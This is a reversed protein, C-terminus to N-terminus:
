DHTENTKYAGFVGNYTMDRVASSSSQQWTGEARINGAVVPPARHFSANTGPIPTRNARGHFSIDWTGSLEGAPSIWDDNLDDPGTSIAGQSTRIAGGAVDGNIPGLDFSSFVAFDLTSDTRSLASLEEVRGSITFSNGTEHTAGFDAVLTVRGTYEGIVRSASDTASLTAVGVTRGDYEATGRIGRTTSDIAISYDPGVRYFAGGYEWPGGPASTMWYGLKLYDLHHLMPYADTRVPQYYDASTEGDDTYVHIEVTDPASSTSDTVVVERWLVEETCPGDSICETSDVGNHMGDPVGDDQDRVFSGDENLFAAMPFAFEDNHRELFAQCAGFPIFQCEM